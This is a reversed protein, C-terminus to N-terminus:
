SSASSTMLDSPMSGHILHFIEWNQQTCSQPSLFLRGDVYFDNNSEFAETLVCPSIVSLEHVTVSTQMLLGSCEPPKLLFTKM